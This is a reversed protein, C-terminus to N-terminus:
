ARGRYVQLDKPDKPDRLDKRDAAVQVQLVQHGVLGPPVLRALRVRRVLPVVRGLRVRLGRRAPRPGCWM